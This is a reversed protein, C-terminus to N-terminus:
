GFSVDNASQQMKMEREMEVMQQEQSYAMAWPVALLMASTSLVWLAKGGFLLGQQVYSSTTSYTSSLKQRYSPPIM